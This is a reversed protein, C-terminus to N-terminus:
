QCLPLLGQNLPQTKSKANLLNSVYNWSGMQLREAIWKLSMTSQKRLLKALQVKVPHAKSVIRLAHEKWGLKELEVRLYTGLLWKMGFVLNPQPTELVLHFHNRMLCYAHVQWETKWCAETLTGLFKDRDQDDRFIDERQDGRNMVHYIAGPYQIRLPRAM